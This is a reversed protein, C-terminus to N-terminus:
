GDDSETLRPAVIPLVLKFEVGKDPESHLSIDGGLVATTLNYVIYLGLGSGGKGLKTTFFPDFAQQAISAHMGSGDDRYHLTIREGDSSASIIIRGQAISEFGHLLSNLILNSLIQELPGPYSDLVIGDPVEVSVTHATRRLTPLLATLIEGVVVALDFSRRRTSTQDVAVEKFSGILNSARQANREVITAADLCGATFDTLESRKLGEGSTLRSSFEETRAHLATAVTLVNGLPTNLEHAV